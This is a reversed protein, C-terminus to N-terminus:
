SKPAPPSASPSALAKSQTDKAEKIDSDITRKLGYFIYVDILLLIFSAFAFLSAFIAYTYATNTKQDRDPINGLVTAGMAAEIGTFLALGLSIVLGIILALQFYHVKEWKKESIVLDKIDDLTATHKLAAEVDPITLSNNFYAVLLLCVIIVTTLIGIIAGITLNTHAGPAKPDTSYSPSGIINGAAIACFIGALLIFIISLVALGIFIYKTTDSAM